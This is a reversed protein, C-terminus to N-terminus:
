LDPRLSCAQPDISLPPDTTDSRCYTAFTTEAIEPNSGGYPVARCCCTMLRISFFGGLVQYRSM